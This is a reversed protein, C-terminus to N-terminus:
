VEMGLQRRMEQWETRAAARRRSGGDVKIPLCSQLLRDYTRGYGVEAPKTLEDPTLNTTIIVPGGTIYRAEVIKYVMEQMYETKREAGLDDLIMLDYRCLDRIYGAKDEATWLEDAVTSFKTMVVRYGQDIVANAICAALYTKGTGIPGHLLLGKGTKLHQPFQEAYRRCADSLDPRKRDDNAFCWGRMDTGEFCLAKCRDVADLREREKREDEGTPCSCWCRVTRPKAGEFPPTVITQRPGGCVSCRLLGTEEDLYETGNEAGATAKAAVMDLLANAFDLGAPAAPTEKEAAERKQAAVRL